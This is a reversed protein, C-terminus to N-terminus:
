ALLRGFDIVMNRICSQIDECDRVKNTLGGIKNGYEKRPTGESVDEPGSFMNGHIKGVETRFSELTSKLSDLNDSLEQLDSREKDSIESMKEEM